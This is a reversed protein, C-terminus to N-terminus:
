KKFIYKECIKISKEKHYKNIFLPRIINESLINGQKKARFVRNIHYSSKQGKQKRSYRNKTYDKGNQAENHVCQKFHCAQHPNLCNCDCEGENDCHYEICSKFIRYNFPCLMYNLNSQMHLIFILSATENHYAGFLM